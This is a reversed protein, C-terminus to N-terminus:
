LTAFIRLIKIDVINLLCFSGTEELFKNKNPSYICNTLCKNDTKNYFESFRYWKFWQADRLSLHIKFQLCLSLNNLHVIQSTTILWLIHWGVEIFNHIFFHIFFSKILALLPKDQTVKLTRIRFRRSIFLQYIFM